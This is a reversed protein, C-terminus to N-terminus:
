EGRTPRDPQLLGVLKQRLEAEGIGAFAIVKDRSAHGSVIRVSARRLGLWDAMVHVLQQNARDDEPPASVSVKLRDGYTGRVAAQPASPSVRVGVVLGGGGIGIVPVAQTHDVLRDIVM